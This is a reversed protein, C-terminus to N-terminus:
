QMQMKGLFRRIRKANTGIDNIGVRSVSRIDLRSGSDSKGIRIIIDDRFGFWFTTDTAEIRGADKDAYVITWRMSRAVGLAKDFAKEPPFKLILPVIDPYAKLQEAAIQPGGYDSPNSANRRLAQIAAFDPPDQTDTTIDHIRPLGKAKEMWYWPVAALTIGIVLGPVALLLNRTIAPKLSFIIALLSIAAAATGGYAAWRLVGLGTRFYWLEYRTGMGAFIAAIAAMLALLFGVRAAASKRDEQLEDM